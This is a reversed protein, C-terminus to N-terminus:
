SVALASPEVFWGGPPGVSTPGGGGGVLSPRRTSKFKLRAFSICDGTGRVLSEDGIGGALSRLRWNDVVIPPSASVLHWRTCERHHLVQWRPRESRSHHLVQWERTVDPLSPRVPGLEGCGARPSALWAAWWGAMWSYIRM